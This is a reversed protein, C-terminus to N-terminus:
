FLFISYGLHSALLFPKLNPNSGKWKLLISSRIIEDESFRITELRSFVLPFSKELYEKQQVFEEFNNRPNFPESITKFQIVRQLREISPHNDRPIKEIAELTEKFWNREEKSLKSLVNKNFNDTSQYSVPNIANYVIISLLLFVAVVLLTSIKALLAM